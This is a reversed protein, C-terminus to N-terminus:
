KTSSDITHCHLTRTRAFLHLFGTAVNLNPLDIKLTVEKPGSDAHISSLKEKQLRWVFPWSPACHAETFSQQKVTQEGSVSEPSNHNGRICKMEQNRM